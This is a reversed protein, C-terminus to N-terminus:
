RGWVPTLWDAYRRDEGRVARFFAAQLRATIPGMRGSGIRYGDVDVVPAIQAGTGTLFVEDAVYLESRDISREVVTLGADDALQMVMERTIGELIDDTVSPTLLRGGRVVFVNAGSGESLHGDSGMLLAEDYGKRRADDVALAINVYSGTLKSRAPMANDSVREWASVMVKLGSVDVYNGMPVALIAVEDRLDGLGVKIVRSAKFALPRIYVDRHFEGARLLDRTHQLFEDVSYPCAIRIMRCSAEFRRFHDAARLLFLEQQPASWYARIGEFCGTGYHLAHTAISVTAEGLPVLRGGFFAMGEDIETLASPGSAGTREVANEGQSM